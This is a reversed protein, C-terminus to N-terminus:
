GVCSVYQCAWYGVEPFFACYGAGREPDGCDADEVCTDQPTRCWYAVVGAYHGCSGFSPSCYGGEGCDADVQCNGGLCANADSWFGLECGCPGGTSCDTDTFCEDYTCSPGRRDVCRGNIGETCDEDKACAAGEYGSSFGGPPRVQDCEVAEPRHNKPKRIQKTGHESTKGAGSSTSEDETSDRADTEDGVSSGALQEESTAQSDRHSTTDATSPQPKELTDLDGQRELETSAANAGCAAILLAVGAFGGVKVLSESM